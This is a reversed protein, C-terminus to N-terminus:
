FEVAVLIAIPGAEIEGGSQRDHCSGLIDTEELVGHAVNIGVWLLFTM